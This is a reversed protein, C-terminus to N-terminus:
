ADHCVQHYRAVFVAQHEMTRKQPNFLFSVLRFLHTAYCDLFRSENNEDRCVLVVVIKKKDRKEMIIVM